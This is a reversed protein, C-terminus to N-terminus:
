KEVERTIKRKKLIIRTEVLAEMIETVWIFPFDSMLNVEVLKNMWDTNTAQGTHTLSQFTLKQETLLIFDPDLNSVADEKESKLLSSGPFLVSAELSASM